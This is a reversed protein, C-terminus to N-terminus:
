YKFFGRGVKRGLHGEVVLRRLLSPALYRPDDHEAYLQDARTLTTDLGIEDALGLPGVPHVGRGVVASDVCM